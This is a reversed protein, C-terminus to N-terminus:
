RDDDTLPKDYGRRRVLNTGAFTALEEASVTEPTGPPVSAIMTSNVVRRLAESPNRITATHLVGQWTRGSPDYAADSNNVLVILARRNSFCALRTTYPELIAEGSAFMPNHRELFETPSIGRDYACRSFDAMALEAEIPTPEYGLMLFCEAPGGDRHLKTTVQQDFRGASLYALDRGTRARHVARLASKLRIMARRLASSVVDGLDVVAFGPVEFDDRCVRQYVDPAVAEINDGSGALCYDGAVRFQAMSM